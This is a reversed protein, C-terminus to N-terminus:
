YTFERDNGVGFRVLKVKRSDPKIIIIDFCEQTVTGEQRTSYWTAGDAVYSPRSDHETKACATSCEYFGGSQTKKALNDWHTHGHFYGVVTGGDSIFQEIASRIEAGNQIEFNYANFEKTLSAHSFFAIQHETNLAVNQVWALQDNSYALGSDGDIACLCVIRLDLNPVDYYFYGKGYPDHVDKTIYRQFHAYREEETNAEIRSLHGDVVYYSNDDHNGILMFSHEAADIMGIRMEDVLEFNKVKTTEGNTFDGGHILADIKYEKNIAKIVSITVPWNNNAKGTNYYHSDTAFCVVYCKEECEELITEITTSFESKLYDPVVNPMVDYLGGQLIVEITIETNEPLAAAATGSFWVGVGIADNQATVTLKGNFKYVEGYSSGSGNAYRESVVASYQGTVVTSTSMKIIVKEGAKIPAYTIDKLASHETSGALFTHKYYRVLGNITDISEKNNDIQNQIASGQITYVSPAGDTNLYSAYIHTAGAPVKLFYIGKGYTIDGIRHNEDSSNQFQFRDKSIVKVFSGATVECARCSYDADRYTYGTTKNLRSNTSTYRGVMLDKSEFIYDDVADLEMEIGEIRKGDVKQTGIVDGDVVTEISIVRDESAFSSGYYIGIAKVDNAAVADINRPLAGSTGITQGTGNAYYEYVYISGSTAGDATVKVSYSTGAPINVPAQDNLSSHSTSAKAVFSFNYKKLSDRINAVNKDIVQLDSKVGGLETDVKSSSFTKNSSPTTDDILLTPDGPSGPEGPDGKDGKAKIGTTVYQKTEEDWVFWYDNIIKPQKSAANEAATTAEHCATLAESAQTLFNAIPTPVTGTPTISNNVSIRAKYSKRVMPDDTFTFQIEGNGDYILDSATINWIVNNGDREVVAPYKEGRPPSVALSVIANPNDKYVETADIILQTYLNEGMFGLPIMVNKLDGLRYSITKKGM